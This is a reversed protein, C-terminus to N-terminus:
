DKPYPRNIEAYHKARMIVDEETLRSNRLYKYWGRYLKIQQKTPKKKPVVESWDLKTM